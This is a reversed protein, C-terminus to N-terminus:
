GTTVWTMGVPDAVPGGVMNPRRSPVDLFQNAGFRPVLPVLAPYFSIPFEISQVTYAPVM